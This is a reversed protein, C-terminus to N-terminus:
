QILKAFKPSAPLDYVGYDDVNYKGGTTQVWFDVLFTGSEAGEPAEPLFRKDQTQAKWFQLATRMRRLV